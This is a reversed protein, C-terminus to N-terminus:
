ITMRLTLIIELFMLHDDPSDPHDDLFKPCDDLFKPHSGPVEYLCFHTLKKRGSVESLSGSVESLCGSVESLSGSVESLSGPVESLSGPVESLRGPVESLCGSAWSPTPIGSISCLKAIDPIKVRIERRL